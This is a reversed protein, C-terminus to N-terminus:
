ADPVARPWGPPTQLDASAFLQAALARERSAVTDLFDQAGRMARFTEFGTELFRQLAGLGAAAAPARMLRLSNRLLLNRTFRDLATGVSVMLQIQRERGASDGVRRWAAGYSAADLQAVDVCRAMATDLQESLAHLAGLDAVTQVIEQPFLRVLAPVIRAFQADRQAFDAPGYLDDLFFKTAAAYRPDQMLDAYTHSFRAHQFAKIAVVRDGLAPDQARAARESAVVELSRLIAEGTETM